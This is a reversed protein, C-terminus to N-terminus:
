RRNGSTSTVGHRGLPEGPCRKDDDNQHRGKQPEVAEVNRRRSHRNVLNHVHADHAGNGGPPTWDKDRLAPAALREVM